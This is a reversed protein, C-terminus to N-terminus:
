PQKGLMRAVYRALMDIELHLNDDKACQGLTTHALTHPIINVGFSSEDVENVTLSVGDLTISGKPAIFPMLQEPPAITLRWSEGEKRIATIKALDDIHGYVLHGGLEDGLRLSAELNVKTGIKWNGILTKDLTEQSVDIFFSQDSKEIVTLCCGACSISAGIAERAINLASVAIEIRRGQAQERVSIVSGIDQVLGTFM